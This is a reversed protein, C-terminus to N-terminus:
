PETLTGVGSTRYVIFQGKVTIPQARLGTVTEEFRGGLVTSGWGLEGIGLEAPDDVFTLDIARRVTYSEIGEGLLVPGFQAGKNDHDPHYLHVFPNSAASHALVVEFSLSGTLGVDGEEALVVAELPFTASSLRRASSLEAGDLAAEGTAVVTEGADDLGVYVQQLLKVAGADDRHLILRLPFETPADADADTTVEVEATGDGLPAPAATIQDVSSVVAAGVWLGSRSTTEASVPLDIRTQGLSDSVELVSQFLDGADGGMAARDVAFVVEVEEGPSLPVVQPAAFSEYEHRGTVPDFAGRMRLPVDGAVATEGAPAAESSILAFTADVAVETVNRLRMALAEGADGFAFGSAAVGVRLPGYYESYRSSKVWYARGRELPEFLPATVPVPNDGLLGGVYKFIGTGAAVEDSFGLFSEFNRVGVDEPEQVPFGFFNLGSSAWRYRPPVPRGPLTLELGGSGDAVKVLYAANAGFRTMTSQTPFGNRWVLWQTDPQVPLAPTQIFRSPSPLPNWRWVEEVVGPLLDGIEGHSVDHSLWIANWGEELDYKESVWQARARAGLVSTFCVVALILNRFSSTPMPLFLCM